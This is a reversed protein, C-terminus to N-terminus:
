VFRARAASEAFTEAFREAVRRWNHGSATQRAAARVRERSTDDLALIAAIARALAAADNPPVSWGNEGDRVLDAIGSSRSAVVLAGSAMAEQLVVPTGETEGHEDQVSPLCVIDAARYCSPLDHNNVWGKM